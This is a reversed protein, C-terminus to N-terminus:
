RREKIAAEVLFRKMFKDLYLSDFRVSRKDHKADKRKDQLKIYSIKGERIWHYLTTPKLSLYEAAEKVKLYRKNDFM